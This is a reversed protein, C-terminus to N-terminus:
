PCSDSDMGNWGDALCRGDKIMCMCMCMWASSICDNDDGSRMLIMM